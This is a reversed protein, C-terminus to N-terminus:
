KQFNIGKLIDGLSTREENEKMVDGYDFNEKKEDIVVLKIELFKEIRKAMDIDLQLKGLVVKNLTSEKINLTKALHHITLNKKALASNILSSYNDVVTYEENIKKKKYFIHKEDVKKELVAGYSACSSCVKMVSGTIKVQKLNVDQKGCLECSGM